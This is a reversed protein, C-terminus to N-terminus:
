TPDPAPDDPEPDSPRGEAQGQEFEKKAAGPSRALDPIKAGGFILVAVLLIIVM